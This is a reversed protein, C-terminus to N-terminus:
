QRYDEAQLFDDIRGTLNKLIHGEGPLVHLKAHLLISSIRHATQVSHILMDKEGVFLTLPMTLERLDNDDFLPLVERRYNHHKSVLMQYKFVSEPLSINGNIKKYLRKMGKEGFLMYVLSKIFFSTRQAGIGGPSILVLKNVKEPYHTSFKIALWGGLSSGIISAKDIALASFVENLWDAFATSKYPIQNESSKGPEGPIDIAYVRYKKSFDQADKMWMTSNMASGHLLILPPSDVNGSAIIFTSGFSSNVYFMENPQPWQELLTDYYNLIAGRGEPSKYVLKGNM